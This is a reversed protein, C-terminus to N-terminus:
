ELMVPPHSAQFHVCNVAGEPSLGQMPIVAPFTDGKGTFWLPSYGNFVTKEANRLPQRLFAKGKSPFHDLTVRVEYLANKRDAMGWRAPAHGKRRPLPVTPLAAARRPPGLAVVAGPLPSPPQAFRPSHPANRRHPAAGPFAGAKRAAPPADEGTCPAQAALGSQRM